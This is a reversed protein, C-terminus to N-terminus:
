NVLSDTCIPSFYDGHKQEALNFHIGAWHFWKVKQSLYTSLSFNWSLSLRLLLRLWFTFDGMAELLCCWQETFFVIILMGNISSWCIQLLPLFRWIRFSEVQGNIHRLRIFFDSGIGQMTEMTLNGGLYQAYARCVPLGFGYRCVSFYLHVWNDEYTEIKFLWKVAKDSDASSRENLETKFLLKKHKNSYASIGKFLVSYRKSVCGCMSALWIVGWFNRWM